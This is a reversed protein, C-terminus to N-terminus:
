AHILTRRSRRPPRARSSDAVMPARCASRGPERAPAASGPGTGGFGPRHQCRRRAPDRPGASSGRFLLPRGGPFACPRNREACGGPILERVIRRRPTRPWNAASGRLGAASPARRWCPVPGLAAAHRASVRVPWGASRARSMRSAPRGGTVKSYVFHKEITIGTSSEALTAFSNGYRRSPWYDHAYHSHGALPGPRKRASRFETRVAPGVYSRYGIGPLAANVMLLQAFSPARDRDLSAASAAAVVTAATAAPQVGFGRGHAGRGDSHSTM